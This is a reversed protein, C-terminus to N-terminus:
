LLALQDEARVRARAGTGGGVSVGELELLARKRPLGGGYGTLSGGAGIVRHCPVVIPTPTRGVAAGVLRARLHAELGQPYLEDDLQAALAGYTTTAGYPIERLLQWVRLQLPTGQLDLALDFERRESAFYESLQAVARSLAHEAAAAPRPSGDAFRVDTLGRAGGILTLAGIPSEYVTLSIQEASMDSRKMRIAM